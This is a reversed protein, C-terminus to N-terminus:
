CSLAAALQPRGTISLKRYASTLYQEVTRQTLVMEDAIQRNTAGTAAREATAREQATLANVGGVRGLDPRGSARKIHRAARLWVPRANIARARAYGDQLHDLAQGAEGSELRVVGLDVLAVARHFEAAVGDLVAVAEQAADADLSVVGATALATSLARPAGWRRALDVEDAALAKAAATDGLALHCRSARSRWPLGGPGEIGLTALVRGTELFGELAEKRQNRAECLSARAFAFAAAPWAPGAPAASAHDRLLEDAADLDGLDALVHLLRAATPMDAVSPNRLAAALETRAANLDGRGHAVRGRLYASIAADGAAGRRHAFPFHDGTGILDTALDYEEADILTSVAPWGLRLEWAKHRDTASLAPQARRVCEARNRGRRTDSWADVVGALVNLRPEAAVLGHLRARRRDFIEGADASSAYAMFVGFEAEAALGASEPPLLDCAEDVIKLAPGLPRGAAADVYALDVGIRVRLSPETAMSLAQRLTREADAVGAGIEAAGIGAMLEARASVPMPEALARRLYRLAPEPGRDLAADAADLLTDLAQGEGSMKAAMLHAAAREPGAHRDRVLRAAHLHYSTRLAASIGADVVARTLSHVYRLPSSDSLIDLRILQDAARAADNLRLGALEAVLVLQSDDGLVAIAQAVALAEPGGRKIWPLVRQAVAAVGVSEISALSEEVPPVSRAALAPLLEALLAANGGTARHCGEVFADDPRAGLADGIWRRLHAQDLRPLTRRECFATLEDVLFRREGIEGLSGALVIAFPRDASRHALYALWRLSLADCWQLDDLAVLVPTRTAADLLHASVREFVDFPSSDEPAPGLATAPRGDPLPPLGTLVQWLVGFDNATELISGRGTLVTWGRRRGDARVRALLASKGTGAAGELSVLRAAGGAVADLASVLAATEPQRGYLRRASRAAPGYPSRPPTAGSSADSAKAVRPKGRM